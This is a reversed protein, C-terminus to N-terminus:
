LYSNIKKRVFYFNLVRRVGVEIMRRGVYLIIFYIVLNFEYKFNVNNYEYLYM